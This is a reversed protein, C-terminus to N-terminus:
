HPEFIGVQCSAPQRRVWDTKLSEIRDIMLVGDLHDIEHQVCVAELHKAEHQFLIGQANLAEVTLRQARKVNALYEPFSLCGERMTKNRSSQVIVPNVFVQLQDKTTNATMDMVFIRHTNGVQNAALGIAGGMTYLTEVMDEILQQIDPTVAEVPTCVTRLVPHPYKYVKLIAM